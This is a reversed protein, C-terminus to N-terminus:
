NHLVLFYFCRTFRRGNGRPLSPPLPPTEIPCSRFYTTSIPASSRECTSTCLKKLKTNITNRSRHLARSKCRRAKSYRVPKPNAHYITTKTAPSQQRAEWERSEPCTQPQYDLRHVVICARRDIGHQLITTSREVITKTTLTEYLLQWTQYRSAPVRVQGSVFHQLKQQQLGLPVIPREVIGRRGPSESCFFWPLFSQRNVRAFCFFQM